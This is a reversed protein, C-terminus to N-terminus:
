RLLTINGQKYFRKGTNTEAEIIYMYVGFPQRVGNFTGDWGEDVNSSEYVKNGWRNYIRLYKLTVIGRKVPKLIKNAGDPSFANPIDILSEYSVYIDISDRTKCGGESTGDVFYRTNVPPQAVPNAINVNTLGLPPWWHFYICNGQPNMQYSDGPFLWVSDPMYIVANSAFIVNIKDTDRCGNPYWAVVTYNVSTKPYIWPHAGTDSLGETPIWQFDTAGTVHLQLSDGNCVSTDNPILDLGTPLVNVKVQASGQCGAQDIGTVTYTTTVSPKAWTQACTACSLGTAPTWTYSTAGNAWILTSQKECITPDPIVSLVVETVRINGTSTDHCGNATHGILRITYNGIQTFAHSPNQSTSTNGDGFDWDWSAFNNTSTNQFSTSKQLCTVTDSNFSAHYNPTPVTIQITSDCGTATIMHVNYVGPALTKVTDGNTGTFQHVTQSSSNTWTYSYSVNTGPHVWAIANNENICGSLAGFNPLPGFGSISITYAYTQTSALPCGNDTMTVYFTYNGYNVASINWSFNFQPATTNNGNVSVTAGSPLGSYTITINDNNPDSATFNFSLNGNAGKCAQIQTPGTLTGNTLSSINGPAPAANNCTNLVVFTMERMSTGVLVGNRYEEVRYVVVSKQLINPNFGLQGTTSSFNFSGAQVGLPQAGSYPSNYTAPGGPSLADVLSFNLADNNPDVAGPNYQTAQNVCFFPTPIVTYTVSSNPNVTNNLTAELVMISGGQAPIVVNTINNSRGALNNTGFSGTTRFIWNTSTGSLTINATYSFKTVGPISGGNCTTNNIQSPCVPTVEVPNGTLSLSITQFLTTNDFVQVEPQASFLNPFAAGSCDGYVDLQIKYTNGSIYTYFLDAGYLHSARAIPSLTVLGIALLLFIRLKM